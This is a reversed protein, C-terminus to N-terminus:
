AIPEPLAAEVANLRNAGPGPVVEVCHAPIAAGNSDLVRVQPVPKGTRSDNVLIPERGAGMIWKDSWQRLATITTYLDKGQPTLRYEYQCGRRKVEVKELVDHAVLHQLRNSLVNKAIGLSQQFDSFRSVGLFADRIILFTWWDGLVELAQAIACNMEDFRKRSM